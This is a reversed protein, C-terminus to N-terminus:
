IIMQLKIASQQLMKIPDDICVVRLNQAHEAGYVRFIVYSGSHAAAFLLENLSIEFSSKDNTKTTKVEVFKKTPGTGYVIDYPKGSEESKNVWELKEVSGNKAALLQWVLQEGWRGLEVTDAGSDGFRTKIHEDLSESVAHVQIEVQELEAGGFMPTFDSNQSASSSACLVRGSDNGAGGSGRTQASNSQGDGCKTDSSVITGNGKIQPSGNGAQKPAAAVRRELEKQHALERESIMGSEHLDEVTGVVETDHLVAGGSSMASPMPPPWAALKPHQADTKSSIAVVPVSMDEGEAPSEADVVQGFAFSTLDPKILEWAAEDSGLDSVRQALLFKQITVSDANDGEADLTMSLIHLFAAMGADISGFFVATLEAFVTSREHLAADLSVYFCNESAQWICAIPATAIHGLLERKVVLQEVVSVLMTSVRKGINSEVLEAYLEPQHVKIYRQIFPMLSAIRDAIKSAFHSGSTSCTTKLLSSVRQVGLLGLLSTLNASNLQDESLQMFNIEADVFSASTGPDDSILVSDALSVWRCDTTPFISANVLRPLWETTVCGKIDWMAVTDALMALVALTKNVAETVSSERAIKELVRAYSEFKPINKILAQPQLM